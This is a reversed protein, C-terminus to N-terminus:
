TAAAVVINENRILKPFRMEKTTIQSLASSSILIFNRQVEANRYEVAQRKGSGANAEPERHLQTRISKSLVRGMWATPQACIDHAPDITTAPSIKLSMLTGAIPKM